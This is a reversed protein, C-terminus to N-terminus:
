AKTKKPKTASESKISVAKNKKIIAEAADLRVSLFDIEEKYADLIYTIDEVRRATKGLLATILHTFYETISNLIQKM